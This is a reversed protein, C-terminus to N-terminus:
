GEVDAGRTQRAARRRYAAAKARDGCGAMGCWRRTHGRSADVFPRTCDQGDCFRLRPDTLAHQAARAVLALVEDASGLTRVGGDVLAPVPTPGAALANVLAIADKDVPAGSARARLAPYLVERLAIARGYDVASVEPPESVAGSLAFWEALADPTPVREAAVTDRSAVTAVFDLALNGAVFAFEM